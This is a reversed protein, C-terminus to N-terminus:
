KEIRGIYIEKACIKGELVSMRSLVEHMAGIRQDNIYLLGEWELIENALDKKLKEWMDKYSIEEDQNAFETENTQKPKM